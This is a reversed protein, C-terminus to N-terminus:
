RLVRPRSQAGMVAIRQTLDGIKAKMAPQDQGPNGMAVQNLLEDREKKLEALRTSSDQAQPGQLGSEIAAQASMDILGQGTLVQQPADKIAKTIAKKDQEQAKKVDLRKQGDAGEQKGYDGPVGGTLNIKSSM